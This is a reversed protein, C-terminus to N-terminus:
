RWVERLEANIDKVWRQLSWSLAVRDAPQVDSAAIHQCWMEWHAFCVSGTPGHRWEGCGDIQCRMLYRWLRAWLRRLLSM